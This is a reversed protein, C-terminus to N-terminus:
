RAAEVACARAEVDIIACLRRLEAEEQRTALSSPQAAAAPVPATVAPSARKDTLRDAPGADCSAVLSVTILVVTRM